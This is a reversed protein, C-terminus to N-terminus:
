TLIRTVSQVNILGLGHSVDKHKINNNEWHFERDNIEQALTHSRLTHPFNLGLVNIFFLNIMLYLNYAIIVRRLRQQTGCREM